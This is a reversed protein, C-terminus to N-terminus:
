LYLKKIKVKEENEQLDYFSTIKFNSEYGLDKMNRIIEDINENNSKIKFQEINRKIFEIYKTEDRYKKTFVELVPKNLIDYVRNKFM